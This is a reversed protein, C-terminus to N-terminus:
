KDNLVKENVRWLTAQGATAVLTADRALIARVEPLLAYGWVYDFRPFCQQWIPNTFAGHCETQRFVLPQQGPMAFLTSVDAGHSLTWFQIIHASSYAIRLPDNAFARESVDSKAQIVFVSAGQPISDGMALTQQSARSITVWSRAIYGTRVVMLGLALALVTKQWWTWQPQVSLLLMLFIPVIYREAVHEATLMGDPTVIFMVVYVAAIAAAPHVKCRVCMTVCFLVFLVASVADVKLGYSYVPSGVYHLKSLLSTWITAPGGTGTAPRTTLFAAMLAAPCVLWGLKYVASALSREHTFDIVAMVCCAVGLLVVSSLHSLFAAAGLLCLVLFRWGTMRHRVRLWFAFSCLFVGLGFAFNAFGYLFQHNYFTFACFPALWNPKGSLACGVEGCGFVYLTAALSLFIKACVLIPLFRLLPVLILDMALNPVPVYSITYRQQWLPNESYHALVYCRTLHNPFDILGPYQVTWIPILLIALIVLLTWRYLNWEAPQSGAFPANRPEAQAVPLGQFVSM